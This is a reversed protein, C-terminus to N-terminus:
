AEHWRVTVQEEILPGKREKPSVEVSDVLVGLVLRQRHLSLRAWPAGEALPSAEPDDATSALDLLPSLDLVRPPLAGLEASLQARRETLPRTMAELAQADVSGAAFMAGLQEVRTATAALEDELAQREDSGGETALAWRRATEVAESSLPDLTGIRSVVRLVVIATLDRDNAMVPRPCTGPAVLSSNCRWYGHRGRSRDLTMPSGCAGCRCFGTLLASASRRGTKKAARTTSSRREMEALVERHRSPSILGEWLHEGDQIGALTPLVLWRSLSSHTWATGRPSAVGETNLDAVISRVSAGELFSDVIAFARPAETANPTLGDGSRSLGWPPLGGLYGGAQRQREKGAKVRASKDESEAIALEAFLAFSLLGARDDTDLQPTLIRLGDAVLGRLQGATRGNRTLRSVEWTVLVDGPRVTALLDQLM